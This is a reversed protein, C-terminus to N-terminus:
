LINDIAKYIAYEKKPLLLVKKLITLEGEIENLDNKVNNAKEVLYNM